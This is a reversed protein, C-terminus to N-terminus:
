AGLQQNRRRQKPRSKRPNDLKEEGKLQKELALVQALLRGEHSEKMPDFWQPMIWEGGKEADKWEELEESRSKRFLEGSGSFPGVSNNDPITRNLPDFTEDAHPTTFKQWGWRKLLVEPDEVAKQMVSKERELVDIRANLSKIQEVMEKMLEMNEAEDSM